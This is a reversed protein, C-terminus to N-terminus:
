GLLRRSRLWARAATGPSEGARVSAALTALQETTLDTNVRSLAGRAALGAFPAAILPFVHEPPIVGKPDTLVVLHDRTLVPDTSSLALVDATATTGSSVLTCGYAAKLASVSPTDLDGSASGGLTLRRGPGALDAISHMGGNLGAAARTVALVVGHQAAAAPLADIGVPLVTSLTAAMNGPLTEGAPFTRLVTAEYAPALSIEGAVVAKASDSPSAYEKPATRVRQGAATLLQGYMAAVVRSEASGDSGIVTPGEHDASSVTTKGATTNGCSTLLLVSLMATSIRLRRRNGSTM